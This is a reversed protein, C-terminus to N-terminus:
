ALAAHAVPRRRTGAARWPGVLAAAGSRRRCCRMDWRRRCRMNRCGFTRFAAGVGTGGRCAGYSQGAAATPSRPPAPLRVSRTRQGAQEVSLFVSICGLGSNVWQLRLPHRFGGGLSVILLSPSICRAVGRRLWLRSRGAAAPTAQPAAPMRLVETPLSPIQYTM